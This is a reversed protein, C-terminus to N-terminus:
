LYSTTKESWYSSLRYNKIKTLLKEICSSLNICRYSSLSNHNGSKFIPVVWSNNWPLDDEDQMNDVMGKLILAIESISNKLIEYVLGDPGSSKCNHTSKLSTVIEEITIDLKLIDDALKQKENKPIKKDQLNIPRIKATMETDRNELLTKFDNATLSSKKNKSKIKNQNILKWYKKGDNSRKANKLEKLKDHKNKRRESKLKKNYEKKATLLRVLNEETNELKYNKVAFKYKQRSNRVEESYILKLRNSKPRNDYQDKPIARDKMEILELYIEKTSIPETELRCKLSNCDNDFSDKNFNKENFETWKYPLTKGNSRYKPPNKTMNLEHEKKKIDLMLDITLPAHDTYSVPELIQFSSIGYILNRSIILYDILSKKIEGKHLTFYTCKGEELRGNAICLSTENCFEIIEKGQGNVTSDKSTRPLLNSSENDNLNGIRGNLDGVIIINEM